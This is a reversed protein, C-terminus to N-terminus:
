GPHARGWPPAGRRRQWWRSALLLVLSLPVLWAFLAAFAGLGPIGLLLLLSPACCAGGAALAPVAAVLGGGRSTMGCAAPQRWLAWAGDVNLAFLLGLAAAILINLPSILWVLSGAQLMGIGEFQFVVRQDLWRAPGGVTLSWAPQPATSLDGLAYLYGLAYALGIVAAVARADPTVRAM